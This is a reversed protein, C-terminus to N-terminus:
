VVKWQADGILWADFLSMYRARLRCVKYDEGVGDLSIPKGLFTLSTLNRGRLILEIEQGDYAQGQTTINAGNTVPIYFSSHGSRVPVPAPLKITRIDNELGSVVAGSVDGILATLRDRKHEITLGSNSSDADYFGTSRDGRLNVNMVRCGSTNKARICVTGSTSSHHSSSVLAGRSSSLNIDAIKCAEYYTNGMLETGIAGHDMTGYRECNQIFGGDLVVATTNFTTSNDVDIGNLGNRIVLGYDPLVGGPDSSYLNPNLIKCANAGNQYILRTSATGGNMIEPNDNKLGYCLLGVRMGVCDRGLQMDVWLGFIGSNNRCKILDIGVVGAKGNFDIRPNHVQINRIYDTGAVAPDAKFLTINDRNAYFIADRSQHITTNGYYYYTADVPYIGPMFYIDGGSSLLSQIDSHSYSPEIIVAPRTLKKPAYDDYISQGGWSSGVLKDGGSSALRKEFQDPDYKLVNPFYFQQVGYADYVAMSHGQVTVFKAIQGNYVPYGAANIIIPQSVPVHSGDENEVYVQIQNEPNVPDTDIKGIYIKGNAVAKFSRAMTFLQSPMSVIVNATIDTM